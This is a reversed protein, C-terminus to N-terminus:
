APRQGTDDETADSLTVEGVAPQLKQEDLIEQLGGIMSLKAKSICNKTDLKM